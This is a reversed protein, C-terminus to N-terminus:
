STRQTCSALLQKVSVSITFGELNYSLDMKNHFTLAQAPLCESKPRSSCAALHQHTLSDGLGIESLGSPYPFPETCYSCHTWDWLIMCTEKELDRQIAKFTPKDEPVNNNTITKMQISTSLFLFHKYIM